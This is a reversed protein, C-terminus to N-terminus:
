VAECKVRKYTFKKQLDKLYQVCQEAGDLTKFHETAYVCGHQWEKYTSWFIGYCWSTSVTYYSEGLGNTYECIKYICKLM